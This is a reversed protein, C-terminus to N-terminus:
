RLHDLIPHWRTTDLVCVHVAKHDIDMMILGKGLQQQQSPLSDPIPQLHDDHYPIIGHISDVPFVLAQEGISSYILQKRQLDDAIAIHPMSLFGSLSLYLCVEGRVHTLGRLVATNSHPLPTPLKIALVERVQLLSLAFYQDHLCFVIMRQQQLLQVEQPEKLWSDVWTMDYNHPVAQDLTKRGARIYILCNRCHSYHALEPCDRKEKAWVGRQNWCDIVKNMTPM